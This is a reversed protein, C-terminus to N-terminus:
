NKQGSFFEYTSKLVNPSLSNQLGSRHFSDLTASGIPGSLPEAFKMAVETAFEEFVEKEPILKIKRLKPTLKSAIDDRNIHSLASIRDLIEDIREQTLLVPEM